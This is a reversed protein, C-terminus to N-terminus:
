LRLFLQNNCSFKQAIAIDKKGEKETMDTWAEICDDIMTSIAPNEQALAKTRCVITVGQWWRRKDKVQHLSRFSEIQSRNNRDVNEQTQDKSNEWHPMVRVKLLHLLVTSGPLDSGVLDNLITEPSTHKNDIKVIVDGKDIEKSLFAPGGMVMGEVTCDHLMIGVTSKNRFQASPSPPLSFIDAHVVEELRAKLRLCEAVEEKVKSLMEM